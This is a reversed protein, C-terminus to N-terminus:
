LERPANQPAEKSLGCPSTLDLCKHVSAVRSSELEISSLHSKVGEYSRLCTSQENLTPDCAKSIAGASRPVRIAVDVDRPKPPVAM